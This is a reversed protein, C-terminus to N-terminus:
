HRSRPILRLEPFRHRNRYVAFCIIVLSFIIVPLPASCLWLVVPLLPAVLLTMSFIHRTMALVVGMIILMIVMPGTALVLFIGIITSIGQGGRFGISFPYCHGLIAAFGGLFVFLSPADFFQAILIAAAGKGIDMAAVVLGPVMGVQRMTSGAGMNGIDVDRIDIGKVMKTIIYASPISGLLYGALVSLVGTLM